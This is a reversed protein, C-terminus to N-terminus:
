KDSRNLREQLGRWAENWGLDVRLRRGNVPHFVEIETCRLWLASSGTWSAAFQNHDRDGHQRDGLIPHHISRLHSRLQHYRGTKPHLEVVSSRATAYRGVAMPLEYHALTRYNTRAPIRESGARPGPKVPENIEGQEPTWGRTWAVYTKEVGGAYFQQCLNRASHSDLAFLVVGSTGRDLRHIPHVYAGIEDRVMRMLNDERAAADTGILAEQPHVVVGAPKDVAVVANDRYCIRLSM